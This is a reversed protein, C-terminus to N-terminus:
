MARDVELFGQHTRCEGHVRRSRADYDGECFACITWQPAKLGSKESTDGDEEVESEDEDEDSGDADEADEEEKAVEGGWKTGDDEHMGLLAQWVHEPVAPIDDVLATLADRIRTTPATAIARRLQTRAANDLMRPPELTSPPVQSIAQSERCTDSGQIPASM